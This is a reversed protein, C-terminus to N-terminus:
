LRGYAGGAGSIATLFSSTDQMRTELRQQVTPNVVFSEVASQVGNLSAIADLYARYHTRTENRM